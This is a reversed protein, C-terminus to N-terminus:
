RSIREERSKSAAEGPEQRLESWGKGSSKQVPATAGRGTRPGCGIGPSCKWWRPGTRVRILM